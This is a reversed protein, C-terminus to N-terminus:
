ADKSSEKGDTTLGETPRALRATINGGLLRNAQDPDFGISRLRPMIITILEILRGGPRGGDWMQLDAMDTALAIQGAYGDAGLEEILPWVHKEPEYKPRFFTDYELLVGEAALERHLSADPRKDMHCLILRDSPVDFGRLEAVIEAAAAGRETHVAIATGTENAAIAAAEMLQRPSEELTAQCAIKIQGALIPSGAALSESLGDCLETRFWGSARETSAQFLWHEPPYYKRLHYGTSAIVHLGHRRALRALRLGDRGCGGPQCDVIASGGVRQFAALGAEIVEADNLVPADPDSGEILDIWLHNHADTIGVAALPIPGTTAVLSRQPDQPPLETM